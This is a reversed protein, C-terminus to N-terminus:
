NAFTLGKDDADIRRKILLGFWYNWYSIAVFLLFFDPRWWAYFLYSGLVIVYSRWSDKVAYYVLLFVPLFLFLFVNSTFVM